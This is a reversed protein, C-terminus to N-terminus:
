ANKGRHSISIWRANKHGIYAELDFCDSVQHSDVLGLVTDTALFQLM